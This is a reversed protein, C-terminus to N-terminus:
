GDMSFLGQSSLTSNETMRDWNSTGAIGHLLSVHGQEELSPHLSAAASLPFGVTSFFFFKFAFSWPALSPDPCIGGIRFSLLLRLHTNQGYGLLLTM